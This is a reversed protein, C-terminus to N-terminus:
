GGDQVNQLRQAEQHAARLFAALTPYDEALIRLECTLDAIYHLRDPAAGGGAGGEGRLSRSEGPM